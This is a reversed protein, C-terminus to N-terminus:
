FPAREMAVFRGSVDGSLNIDDPNLKMVPAGPAFNLKDLEIWVVNPANTLEFFYRRNTLDM